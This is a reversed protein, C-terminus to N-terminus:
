EVNAPAAGDPTFTVTKGDKSATGIVREGGFTVNIPMTLTAGGDGGLSSPLIASEPYREAFPTAENGAYFHVVLLDMAMLGAYDQDRVALNWIKVMAADSPDLPYPDFSEKIIPAKAETNTNGLIDNKSEEQWDYESASSEVRKGIASWVPAATTGTNLYLIKQHRNVTKGAPTNFTLEDPM